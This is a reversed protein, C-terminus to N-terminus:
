LHKFKKIKRKSSRKEKREEKIKQNQRRCWWPIGIRCIAKITLSAIINNHNCTLFNLSIKNKLHQEARAMINKQSAFEDLYEELITIANGVVSTFAESPYILANNGDVWEKNSIFLNHLEFNSSQLLSNCLECNLKRTISKLIFGAVYAVSLININGSSIHISIDNSLEELIPEPVGDATLDKQSNDVGEVQETTVNLFSKLNSLLTNDDEECNTGVVSQNTLGNLIQTKLSGIFLKVTPNDNCGCGYRISGFLNELPDQNLSRPRLISAGRLELEKWIGQIANLSVMWGIQSPPRSSKIAGTKTLRKFTWSKINNLAEPWYTHHPSNENVACRLQKGEPAYKNRGNFSDFLTDVDKVFSATAVARPELVGLFIDKSYIYFICNLTIKGPM